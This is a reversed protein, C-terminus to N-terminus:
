NLPYQVRFSKDGMFVAYGVVSQADFGKLAQNLGMEQLKTVGGPQLLEGVIRDQESLDRDVVAVKLGQRGLLAALTAGAVGAGIIALDYVLNEKPEDYKSRPFTLPTELPLSLKSFM